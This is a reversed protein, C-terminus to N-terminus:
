LAVLRYFPAYAEALTITLRKHQFINVYKVTEYPGGEAEAAQLAYDRNPEVLTTVISLSGDKWEVESAGWPRALPEGVFMGEGPWAVSKWYAELVTQGRFYHPLLFRPDSFKEVFNCPEIVTGYSATAGAELWRLVNMQGGQPIKGGFSTLHDAVAGPVFTNTDIAPVATLGTLYVLVDSTNEIFNSKDGQANDIYSLALGEPYDWTTQATVFAPWRVSRAVDTTRILYGDGTPFTDDAAVGRDILSFVNQSSTGALAMTPRIGFDTFPQLSASNAYPVSATPACGAGQQCYKKDYGLAFASTASMCDVRHPQTWSIAFAQIDDPVVADIAAKVQAFVEPTMVPTTAFSLKIVNVDPIKRAKQYYAAVALSQADQDNVLIALQEHDISTRPLRVTPPRSPIESGGSGGGGAGAGGNGAQSITGGAGASGGSGVPQPVDSTQVDDDSDSCAAVLVLLLCLLRMSVAYAADM